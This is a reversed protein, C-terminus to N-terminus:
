WLQISTKGGPPAHLRTTSRDTIFNGCNQNSGDAFKNSSTGPKVAAPAAAAASANQKTAERLPAAAAPAPAAPKPAAAKPAPARKPAPAEYGGFLLSGM